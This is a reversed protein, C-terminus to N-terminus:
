EVSGVTFLRRDASLIMQSDVTPKKLKGVEKLGEGGPKLTRWIRIDALPGNIVSLHM